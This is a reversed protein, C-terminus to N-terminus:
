EPGIYQLWYRAMIAFDHVDIFCDLNLDGKLAQAPDGCFEYREYAGMDVVTPYDPPDPVGTDPTIPDNTFRAHGALDPPIRETTDGDGTSSSKVYITKASASANAFLTFGVLLLINTLPKM